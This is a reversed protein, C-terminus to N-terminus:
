ALNLFEYKTKERLRSPRQPPTLLIQRKHPGQVSGKVIIYNSQINGYNNFGSSPNINKEKINGSTILKLNNTVRSFMGLQGAMPARFTVRAPHWPGLSGPRRQGKESKHSKLSLGFRKIPGVLGKGKTLGRADFLEVKNLFDKISIEKGVLSKVYELKKAADAGSVNIESVDPTKKVSTQSSISYVILHIDDFDKPTSSDLSKVQKANKVVKKLIPDNSVVVDSVPLNNKYFRVSLIKMNPAELITVPVAVKKGKTMSNATDDKVIATSMGVKYTIFGLISNDAKSTM